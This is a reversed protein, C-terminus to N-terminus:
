FKDVHALLVVIQLNFNIEESNKACANPEYYHIKHALPLSVKWMHEPSTNTIYTRQKFDSVRFLFNRFFLLKTDTSAWFVKHPATTGVFTGNEM